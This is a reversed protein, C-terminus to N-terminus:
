SQIVPFSATGAQHSGGILFVGPFEPGIQRSEFLEAALLLRGGPQGSQATVPNGMEGFQAKRRELLFLPDKGVHLRDPLKRENRRRRRSFRRDIEALKLELSQGARPKHKHVTMKRVRERLNGLQRFANDDRIDGGSQLAVSLQEFLMERVVGLRILATEGREVGGENLIARQDIHGLALHQFFRNMQQEDRCITIGVGGVEAIEDDGLRGRLAFDDLTIVTGTILRHERIHDSFHHHVFAGANLVRLKLLQVLLREMNRRNLRLQGLTSMESLVRDGGPRIARLLMLM